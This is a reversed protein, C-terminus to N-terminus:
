VLSSESAFDLGAPVIMEDIFDLTGENGHAHEAEVRDVPDAVVIEGVVEDGLGLLHGTM